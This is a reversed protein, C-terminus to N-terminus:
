GAPVVPASYGVADAGTADPGTTFLRGTRAELQGPALGDSQQDVGLRAIKVSRGSSIPTRYLALPGNEESQATLLSDRDQTFGVPVFARFAGAEIDNRGTTAWRGQPVGFYIEQRAAADADDPLLRSTELAIRYRDMMLGYIDIGPKTDRVKHLTGSTAGTLTARYLTAISRTTQKKPNLAWYIRGNDVAVGGVTKGKLTGPLTKVAGTDLRVLRRVQGKEDAASTTVVVVPVGARATGVELDAGYGGADTVTAVKVPAGGRVTWIATPVNKAPDTTAPGEAVAWAVQGNGAATTAGGAQVTTQLSAFTPVSAANAAVPSLAALFALAGGAALASRRRPSPGRCSTLVPRSTTYM